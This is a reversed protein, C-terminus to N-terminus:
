WYCGHGGYGRGGHGYGRGGRYGYGNMQGDYPMGLKSMEQSMQVQAENLKSGLANIEKTISSIESDSAGSSIKADLEVQKAFLQQRLPEVINWHQQMAAQAEPPINAYYPSGGRHWGHASAMGAVGFVSVMCLSLVMFAVRAKKM